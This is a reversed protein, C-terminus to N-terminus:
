DVSPPSGMGVIVRVMNTCAVGGQQETINDGRIEEFVDEVGVKRGEIKLPLTSKDEPPPVAWGNHRPPWFGGGYFRECCM